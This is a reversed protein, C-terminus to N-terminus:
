MITNNPLKGGKEVLYIYWM